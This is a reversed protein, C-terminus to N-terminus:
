KEVNKHKKKRNYTKKSRHIKLVAKFGKSLDLDLERNAMRVAKMQDEQDITMKNKRIKM